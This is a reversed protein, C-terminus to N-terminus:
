IVGGALSKTERERLAMGARPDVFAYLMDVILNGVVVITTIVVVVALILPLDLGVTGFMATVALTGLGSFGFAAEIFVCVGIATGIEMGVMTLIRLGANPLVHRTMVRTEGVGKARATRIYDAHLTQAVTARIMRTYLALFLLAFTIWPLVLHSAWDAPGGCMSTSDPVLPCYGTPPVWGLQDGFATRLILGVVMPHLCIGVLAILSITRDSVSGVRRGSIAGLPVALLVVLLAGGLIISLTQPVASGLLPGIPQLTLKTNELLQAGTWQHGFDFRILHWLYDGYQEILPRDTGLLHHAHALQYDSLHQATPYVFGAPESPIAWFLIFTLTIMLILTFMAAALRRVFFTLYRRM